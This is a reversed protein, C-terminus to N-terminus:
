LGASVIRGARRSAAELKRFACDILLADGVGNTFKAATSQLVSRTNGLLGEADPNMFAVRAKNPVACAFMLGDDRRRIPSRPWAQGDVLAGPPARALLALLETTLESPTVGLRKAYM